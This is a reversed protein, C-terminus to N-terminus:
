RRRRERAYRIACGVPPTETVAIPKGNLTAAIADEVYRTKVDAEKTSDDMAGMYVIKRQKNLVFFEPTRVAGYQKAIKQSEDYLYPFVFKREEARKKMAPMQDAEIKNVNIAVVGVRADPAQYKQALRNIREEYDVAYPCSNCTFVVVVVDRQELDKLSHRKDDVGPLDVWAAGQDGVNVSPNYQGAFARPVAGVLVGGVVAAVAM